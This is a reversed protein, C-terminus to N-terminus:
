WTAICSIREQVCLQIFHQSNLAQRDVRGLRNAADEDIVRLANIAEIKTSCYPGQCLVMCHQGKTEIVAAYTKM